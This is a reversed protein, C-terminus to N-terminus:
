FWHVYVYMETGGPSVKHSRWVQWKGATNTRPLLVGTFVSYGSSNTTKKMKLDREHTHLRRWQFLPPMVKMLMYTSVYAMYFHLKLQLYKRWKSSCEPGLTNLTHDTFLFMTRLCQKKCFPIGSLHFGLPPLFFFFLQPLFTFTFTGWPWCM